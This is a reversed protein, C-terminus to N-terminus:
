AMLIMVLSSRYRVHSSVNRARLDSMRGSAIRALYQSMVVLLDEGKFHLRYNATSPMKLNHQTKLFLLYPKIHLLM